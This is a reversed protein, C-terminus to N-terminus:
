REVVVVAYYVLVGFIGGVLTIVGWLLGSERREIADVGVIVALAFWILFVIGIIGDGAM